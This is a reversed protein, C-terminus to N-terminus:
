GGWAERGLGRRDRQSPWQQTGSATATAAAMQQGAWRRDAEAQGGAGAVHWGTATTAGSRFAGSVTALAAALATALAAALAAALATALATALAAALAAALPPALPATALAAASTAALASAARPRM